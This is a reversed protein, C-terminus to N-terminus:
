KSEAQRRFPAFREEAAERLEGLGGVGEEAARVPAEGRPRNV